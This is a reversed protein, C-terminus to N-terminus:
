RLRGTRSASNTERASRFGEQYGSQVKITQSCNLISKCSFLPTSARRIPTQHRWIICFHLREQKVVALDSCALSRTRADNFDHVAESSDLDLGTLCGDEYTRVAGSGRYKQV